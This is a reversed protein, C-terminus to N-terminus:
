MKARYPPLSYFGSGHVHVEGAETQRPFAWSVGLLRMCAM